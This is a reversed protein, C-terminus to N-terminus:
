HDSKKLITLSISILLIAIPIILSNYSLPIQKFKHEALRALYSIVLTTLVAEWLIIKLEMFNKVNLWKPLISQKTALDNENNNFLVLLGLSFIFSVIAILFMDITQLFQVATAEAFHIKNISFTHCFEYIGLFVFSIGTLFVLGAIIKILYYIALYQYKM